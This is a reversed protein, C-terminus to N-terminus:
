LKYPINISVSPRPGAASRRRAYYYMSSPFLSRRYAARVPPLSKGLAAPYFALNLSPQLRPITLPRAVGVGPARRLMFKACEDYEIFPLVPANSHPLFCSSMMSSETATM